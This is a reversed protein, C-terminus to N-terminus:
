RVWTKTFMKAIFSGDLSDDLDISADGEEEVQSLNAEEENDLTILPESPIYDGLIKKQYSKPTMDLYKQDIAQNSNLDATAETTSFPNEKRKELNKFLVVKPTPIAVHHEPEPEIIPSLRFFPSVKETFCEENSNNKKVSSPMMQSDNLDLLQKGLSQKFPNKESICRKLGARKFVKDRIKDILMIDKKALYVARNHEIKSSSMLTCELQSRDIFLCIIPETCKYEYRSLHEFLCFHGFHENPGVSYVSHGKYYLTVTGQLILYVGQSKEARKIIKFGEVFSPLISIVESGFIEYM